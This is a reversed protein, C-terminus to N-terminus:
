QPTFEANGKLFQFLIYLKDLLKETQRSQDFLVVGKFTQHPYIYLSGGVTCCMYCDQCYQLRSLCVTSLVVHDLDSISKAVLNNM